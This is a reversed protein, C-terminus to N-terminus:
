REAGGASGSAEYAGYGDIITLVVRFTRDLVVLDAIEGEAIRGLGDLGLARAPTTACMRAADVLSQGVVSVLYAFVRDMTTRSGALTGDDLLAAQEGSLIAQGGLRAAAGVPLGTVATGDTIAMIGGPGRAAIALRIMAPHVHVGDCIVEAAVEERALVAGALGPARHALPPMRNFLHTAHRAGADIAAMATEFDAGSHGLSVRYGGAVLSRVLDIGGDLEPAMTVIGIDTRGAAMAALVHPTRFQPGTMAAEPERPIRLCRLPQAGRYDASVFNSELHAPLVRASTDPRHFRARRVQDFVAQLADPACAVTTPCFATVGYRPLRRAIREIAQGDDLADIGEVGHVHVDIFGPVVLFGTLDILDAGEPQVARPEVAVIVGDEVLLSAEPLVRDHLVLDAGSLALM